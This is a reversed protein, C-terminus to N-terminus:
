ISLNQSKLSHNSLHYPSGIPEWFAFLWIYWDLDVSIIDHYCLLTLWMSSAYTSRWVCQGRPANLFCKFLKEEKSNIKIENSCVYRLFFVSLPELGELIDKTQSFMLLLEGRKFIDCMVSLLGRIDINKQSIINDTKQIYRRNPFMNM